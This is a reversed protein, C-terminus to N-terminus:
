ALDPPIQAQPEESATTMGRNPHLLSELAVGAKAVIDFIRAKCQMAKSLQEWPVMNPHTKEASDFVDGYQWGESEHKRIWADHREEDNTADAACQQLSEIRRRQNAPTFNTVPIPPENLMRRVEGAINGQMEELLIWLEDTYQKTM